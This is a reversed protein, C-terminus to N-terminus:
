DRLGIKYSRYEGDVFYIINNFMFFNYDNKKAQNAMKIIDGTWIEDNYNYILHKPINVENFLSKNKFIKNNKYLCNFEKTFDLYENIDKFKLMLEM